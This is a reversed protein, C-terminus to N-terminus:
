EAILRPYEGNLVLKHNVIYKEKENMDNNFKVYSKSYNNCTTTKGCFKPGEICVAGFYKLKENIKYEILRKIYM